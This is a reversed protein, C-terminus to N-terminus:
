ALSWVSCIEGYKANRVDKILEIYKVLGRKRLADLTNSNVNKGTTRLKPLGEYGDGDRLYVTYYVNNNKVEELVREQAKSLKIMKKDGNTENNLQDLTIWNSCRELRIM